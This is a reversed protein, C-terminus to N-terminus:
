LETLQNNQVQLLVKDNCVGQNDLRFNEDNYLTHERDTFGNIEGDPINAIFLLLAKEAKGM